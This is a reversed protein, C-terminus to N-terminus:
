LLYHDEYKKKLAALVEKQYTKLELKETTNEYLFTYDRVIRALVYADALDNDRIEQGFFKYVDLIILEKKSQINGSVYKKLQTPAVLIFPICSKFLHVKVIGAWEGLEFLHGEQSGYSPSEICCHTIDKGTLFEILQQELFFLREVGLVGGPAQLKMQHIITCSSDIIVAGTGTLSLDFGAYNM